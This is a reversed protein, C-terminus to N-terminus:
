EVWPQGFNVYLIAQAAPFSRLESLAVCWKGRNNREKHFFTVQPWKDQLCWGAVIPLAIGAQLKIKTRVCSSRASPFRAKVRHFDKECTKAGDALAMESIQFRQEALAELHHSIARAAIIVHKGVPQRDIAFVAQFLAIIQSTKM